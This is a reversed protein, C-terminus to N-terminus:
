RGPRRPTKLEGDVLRRGLEDDAAIAAIDGELGLVGLARVLVGFSVTPDGDELHRLTVRTVGVREAMETLSMRRRLRATRLRDGM